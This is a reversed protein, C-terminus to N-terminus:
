NMEFMMGQNERKTSGSTLKRTHKNRDNRAVGYMGRQVEAERKKPVM